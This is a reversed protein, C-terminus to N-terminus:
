AREWEAYFKYGRKAYKHIVILKAALNNVRVTKIKKNPTIFELYYTHKSLLMALAMMTSGILVYIIFQTFTAMDNCIGVVLILGTIGILKLM